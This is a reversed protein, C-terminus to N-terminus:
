VLRTDEQSLVFIQWLDMGPRGTDKNGETIKAEQIEFVM